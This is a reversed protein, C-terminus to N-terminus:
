RNGSPESSRYQEHSEKTCGPGLKSSDVKCYAIKKQPPPVEKWKGPLDTQRCRKASYEPTRIDTPVVTIRVPKEHKKETMLSLETTTGGGLCRDCAEM